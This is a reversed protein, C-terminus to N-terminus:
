QNCIMNEPNYEFEFWPYYDDTNMTGIALILKSTGLDYIELVDNIEYESNERMKCNVEIPDFTNSIFGCPNVILDECCSRYGDEPDEIATYSIGDLIFTVYERNEEEDCYNKILKTGYEVGTLEHKGVLESFTM